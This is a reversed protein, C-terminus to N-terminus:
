RVSSIVDLAILRGFIYRMIPYLLLAVLIGLINGGVFFSWLSVAPLGIYCTLKENFWNMWWPNINVTNADCVSDCLWNGFIYGVSYVPIMTWPNNILLSATFVAVSNLSFLYILALAMATHLGVFPSFAIYAGVSFSLALWHSSREKKVLNILKSKIWETM